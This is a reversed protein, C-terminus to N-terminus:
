LTTRRARIVVLEDQDADRALLGRRMLEPARASLLPGIPIRRRAVVSPDLGQSRLRELTRHEVCVSSHVVLLSGEPHLHRVAHECLRDILARGDRGAKWARAPGRRPVGDTGDPVYPPNSVILDFRKGALPQFLDGHMARISVGNLRANLQANIVARRSIDVATVSGAGQLAAAVAILGTGTCIDAVTAGARLEQSMSDILLRSDSEPRYVGRLAVVRMVNENSYM